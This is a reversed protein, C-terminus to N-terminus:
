ARSRPMPLRNLPIHPASFFIPVGEVIAQYGRIANKYQMVNDSAFNEGYYNDASFTDDEYTVSGEPYVANIVAAYVPVLAAAGDLVPLDGTLHLSADIQVLDSDPEFPLYKTVDVMQAQTTGSINNALRATLVKYMSANFLAFIFVILFLIPLQKM